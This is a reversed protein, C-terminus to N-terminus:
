KKLRERVVELFVASIIVVGIAVQQWFYNLGILNLGNSLVGIIFAGVITGAISGKGGSLTAGGIVSAAIANTEYLDGATPAASSVRAALLMGAFAVLAGSIVYNMLKIRNVPIGSLYAAQENSGIAYVYRGFKSKKLLIAMIVAIVAMFIVAWPLWGWLKGSGIWTFESKLGSMPVGDMIVLVIGRFISNTGLTAIFPVIGLVTIVFANFAGLAMGTGLAMLMAVPVPIGAKMASAVVLGSFAVGSGVSLDIGGTIIVFTMGLALIGYLAVHKAVMTLTSASLFTTGKVITFFIVLLVLVIFTRGKLLTM